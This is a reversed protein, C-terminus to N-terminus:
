CGGKIFSEGSAKTVDLNVMNEADTPHIGVTTDQREKTLGCRMAAAIGQTIEGANPAVVHFGVVRDSEKEVIVKM